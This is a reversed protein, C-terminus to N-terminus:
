PSQRLILPLFIQLRQHAIRLDGDFETSNGYYAFTSLGASNVALSIYDGQGFGIGISIVDCLWTYFPDAPGCNGILQGVAAAPRAIKLMSAGTQYVIIPYGAGDVALSIGKPHAGTGMTDIEDCQWEWINYQNMGCNGDSGLFTAYELTGNVNDYHAIHPRDGNNVDIALSAYQGSPNGSGASLIWRKLWGGDYTAYKLADKEGDYYAIHPRDASDLALSAYKGVKEGYDVQECDYSANTCTTGSSGGVYEAYYLSDLGVINSYYYAIGAEANSNIALSAHQGASGLWPDDITEFNWDFLTRVALKLSGGDTTDYYAIMPFDDIPDLEISSYQGVNGDLATSGLM